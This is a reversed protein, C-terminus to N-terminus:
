QLTEPKPSRIRLGVAQRLPELAQQSAVLGSEAAELSKALVERAEREGQAEAAAASRLEELAKLRGQERRLAELEKLLVAAQEQAEQLQLALKKREEQVRGLEAQLAQVAGSRPESAEGPESVPSADDYPMEFTLIGPRPMEKLWKAILARNRQEEFGGSECEPVEYGDVRLLRDGIALGLRDAQTDAQVDVVLRGELTFGLVGEM